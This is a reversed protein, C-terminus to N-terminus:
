PDRGGKWKRRTSHKAWLNCDRCFNGDEFYMTGMDFTCLDKFEGLNLSRKVFLTVTKPNRESSDSGRCDPIQVQRESESGSGDGAEVSHAMAM